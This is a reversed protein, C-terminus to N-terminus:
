PKRLADSARAQVPTPLAAPKAGGARQAIAAAEKEDTEHRVHPQLLSTEHSAEQARLYAQLDPTTALALLKKFYLQYYARLRHRRELDTRAKNSSARLEHLDEDNRIRTELTAMQLHLRYEDAAKGLSTQKFLADLMQLDPGSPIKPFAAAGPGPLSNPPILSPPEIPATASPSPAALAAATEASAAQAATKAPSPSSQAAASIASVLALSTILQQFFKMKKTSLSQAQPSLIPVQSRDGRGGSKAVFNTLNM